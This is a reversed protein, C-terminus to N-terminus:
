RRMARLRQQTCALALCETPKLQVLKFKTHYQFVLCFDIHILIGALTRLRLFWLHKVNKILYFLFETKFHIFKLKFSLFSMLDRTVDVFYITAPQRAFAIPIKPLKRTRESIKHKKILNRIERHDAERLAGFRTRRRRRTKRNCVAVFKLM